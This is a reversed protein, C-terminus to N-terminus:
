NIEFSHDILFTGHGKFPLTGSGYFDGGSVDFSFADTIWDAIEGDLLFFLTLFYRDPVLPFRDINLTIFEQGPKITASEKFLSNSFWALGSKNITSLSVDVKYHTLSQGTFNKFKIRFRVRQGAAVTILPNDKGDLMQVETFRAKGTGIRDTRNGLSTKLLVEGQSLYFDIGNAADGQFVTQGQQLVIVKNCLNQVVTMNHSVFLVTKGEKISRDMKEVSKRQFEADGVALVEDIILIEPELHVAVSFALRVYMGSSYHKVPTDIFKEVGSFEVIEDFKSKIEARRMGLITGNLFINERGTLEPHFGTGVELLASVRGDLVARGYTPKTIRSLIKLLTSKGAGNRGIIAVAEGKSIEFSVERLAWFIDPAQLAFDFRKIRSLTSYISERLDSSRSHGISYKKSLSEVCVALGSM